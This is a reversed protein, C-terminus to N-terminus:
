GRVIQLRAEALDSSAFVYWLFWDDYTVLQLLCRMPEGKSDREDPDLNAGVPVGWLKDTWAHSRAKQHAGALPDDDDPFDIDLLVRDDHGATLEILRVPAVEVGVPAALTVPCPGRHIVVAHYAPDYYDGDLDAFVQLVTAGALDVEGGAASGVLQMVFRMPRNPSEPWPTGPSPASPLGGMRSVLASDSGPRFRIAQRPIAREPPPTYAGAEDEDDEDDDDDEDEDEDEDSGAAILAAFETRGWLPALDTDQEPHPNQAALDGVVALIALAREPDGARAYVCALNYHIADQASDGLQDVRAECRAVIEAIPGALAIPGSASALVAGLAQNVTWWSPQDGRALLRRYCEMSRAPHSQRYHAALLAVGTPSAWSSRGEAEREIADLRDLCADFRWGREAVRRLVEEELTPQKVAARPTMPAALMASAMEQLCRLWHGSRAGRFVALALPLVEPSLDDCLTRLRDADRRRLASAMDVLLAAVGADPGSRYTAPDYQITALLAGDAAAAPPVAHALPLGQKVLWGRVASRAGPIIELHTGGGRFHAALAVEDSYARYWIAETALHNAVLAVRSWGGSKIGQCGDASDVVAWFGGRPPHIAVGVQGGDDLGNLSRPDAASPAGDERMATLLANASVGSAERYFV